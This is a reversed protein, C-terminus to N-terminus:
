WGRFNKREFPDGYIYYKSWKSKLRAIENKYRIKNIGLEDSGRTASELHYLRAYPTWVNYLGMERLKLCFDVDNLAVKYDVEDLGGVALYNERSVMLCAATVASYNQPLVLSHMYGLEDAGKKVGYNNALGGDLGIVLGCHQISDEKYLLKAGVAGVDPRQAFMLMEEIWNPTIVEIDNNLLIMYESDSHQIAFNNLYSYNFEEIDAILVKVKPESSLAEYYDFIAQEQSNNEIIKIDFNSYTSLNLVSNLCRKLDEHHDRNPIVLTIKPTKVQYHIRYAYLRKLFEVEGPFGIRHIHETIAKRGADYAYMKDEPNLAVSGPSARCLCLVKPIHLIQDTQEICRLLLEYDQSGDYGPREFDVRQLIKRSYVILHSMYNMSRLYDPSFGPLFHYALITKTEDSFVLRDSYLIDTDPLDDLAVALEYFANVPLIDDHDMLVIYEGSAMEYAAVTNLAIGLNGGLSKYKIRSDDSLESVIRKIHEQAVDSGDALCLEWNVYTQNFVSSILDRLFDAPTNYLPVVVSFTVDHDFKEEKQRDIENDSLNNKIASALVINPIEQPRLRYEKIRLLTRAPGYKVLSRITKRILGPVSQQNGRKHQSRHISQNAFATTTQHSPLRGEKKGYRIYHVFPNIGSMKVDENEALYFQTDFTSSPNRGEKWGFSVFHSLPNVDARRADPNNLIYYEQNFMNSKKILLYDKLNSPFNVM